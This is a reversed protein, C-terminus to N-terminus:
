TSPLCDSRSTPIHMHTSTHTHPHPYLHIHTNTHTHTHTHIHICIRMQTYTHTHRFPPFTHTRTHTHNHTHTYKGLSALALKGTAWGSLQASDALLVLLSLASALTQARINQKPCKHTCQMHM